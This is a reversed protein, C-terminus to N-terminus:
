IHILSLDVAKVKGYRKKLNNVKLIMKAEKVM